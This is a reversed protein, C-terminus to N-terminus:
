KFIELSGLPFRVRLRGDQPVAGSGVAFGSPKVAYVRLVGGLGM